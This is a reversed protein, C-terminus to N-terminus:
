SKEWSQYYWAPSFFDRPSQIIQWCSLPTVNMCNFSALPSYFPPWYLVRCCFSEPSCQGLLCCSPDSIDVSMDPIHWIHRNRFHPNLPILNVCVCPAPADRLEQNYFYYGESTPVAKFCSAMKTHNRPFRPLWLEQSDLSLGQSLITFPFITRGKLHFIGRVKSRWGSLIMISSIIM